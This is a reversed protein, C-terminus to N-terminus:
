TQRSGARWSEYTGVVRPTYFVYSTHNKAEEGEGGEVYILGDYGESRMFSSFVEVYPPHPYIHGPLDPDPATDLLIRLDIEKRLSQVTELFHLYETLVNEILYNTGWLNGSNKPRNNYFSRYYDCWRDIMEESVPANFRVDKDWRFDFMRAKYPLLETVFRDKPLPGWQRVRSYNEATERDDTAYFGVGLTQSGEGEEQFAPSSYDYGPNFSLAKYSGHFLIDPSLLFAERSLTRPDTNGIIRVGVPKIVTRGEKPTAKEGANGDM